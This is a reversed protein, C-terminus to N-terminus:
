QQSERLDDLRWGIQEADSANVHPMIENRIIPKVDDWFAELEGQTMGSMSRPVVLTERVALPPWRVLDCHGAKIALWGRVNRIGTAKKILAFTAHMLGVFKERDPAATM